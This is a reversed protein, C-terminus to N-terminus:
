DRTWCASIGLLLLKSVADLMKEFAHEFEDEQALIGDPNM